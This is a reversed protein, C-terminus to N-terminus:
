IILFFYNFSPPFYQFFSLRTICHMGFPFPDLTVDANCVAYMYDKTNMQSIFLARSLSINLADMQSSLRTYLKNQWSPMGDNRLLVIISKPDLLLIKLLAHDFLPHMKMLSQICVYIKLDLFGDFSISFLGAITISRTM